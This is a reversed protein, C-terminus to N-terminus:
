YVLSQGLWNTKLARVGDAYPLAPDAAAFGSNVVTHGSAVEHWIQGTPLPLYCFHLFLILFTFCILAHQWTLACWDPLMAQLQHGGNARNGQQQSSASM